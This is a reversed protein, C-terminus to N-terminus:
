AERALTVGWVSAAGAARLAVACADLTAGTTCVDDVLLVSLGDLRDPCLFAGEVNARRQAASAARAQPHAPRERALGTKLVPLGMRKGVERALLEAQNYGRERLRSGHLPVPVLAEAPLPNLSLYRAMLEGLVPALAKLNRYKLHHVAERMLGSMLYPSRIGDLAGTGARCDPCLVGHGLPLGCRFCIPPVVSPLSAQCDPCLYSGHRGCGLCQAPFVFEVLAQSWRALSTRAGGGTTM